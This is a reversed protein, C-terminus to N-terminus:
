LTKVEKAGGHLYIQAAIYEKRESRDKGNHLDKTVSNRLRHFLTTQEEFENWRRCIVMGPEEDVVYSM